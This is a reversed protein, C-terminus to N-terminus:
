LPYTNDRTEILWVSPGRALVSTYGECLNIRDDGLMLFKFITFNPPLPYPREDEERKGGEKSVDVM